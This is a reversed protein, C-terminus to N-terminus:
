KKDDVVEGEVPEEKDDKKDEANEDNAEEDKAAAEYMKAGIPMTTDVLTKAAAELAEKDAKEDAIVKKAEEIADTLTKLDDEALKDKNDDKMKEAQYIASDLHNKAEISERLKKDEEAHAEADKAM